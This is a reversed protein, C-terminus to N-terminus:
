PPTGLLYPVAAPAMLENQHGAGTVTVRRWGFGTHRQEAYDRATDFFRQGRALRHPGQALAEPTRRLSPHEPDNDSEGLLVTLPLNLTRALSEPSINSGGLGYPFAVNFDPMMYWGANAAVVSALRARPVFWAYRHVFQAGASHGYLGYRATRMGFRERADDFMPEIASFSWQRRPRPAGDEGRLHGM